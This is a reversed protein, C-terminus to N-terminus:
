TRAKQFDTLIRDAEKKMEEILQIKYYNLMSKSHKVKEKYYIQSPYLKTFDTYYKIDRRYTEIVEELYEILDESTEAGDKSLEEM